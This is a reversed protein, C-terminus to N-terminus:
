GKKSNVAVAAVLSCGVITLGEVSLIHAVGLVHLVVAGLLLAGILINKSKKSMGQHARISGIEAKRTLSLIKLTM